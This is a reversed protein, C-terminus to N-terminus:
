RLSFIHISSECGGSVSGIKVIRKVRFFKKNEYNSTEVGKGKEKHSSENAYFKNLPNYILIHKSAVLDINPRVKKIIWIFM